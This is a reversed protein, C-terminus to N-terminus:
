ISSCEWTYIIVGVVWIKNNVKVKEYRCMYIGAILAAATPLWEFKYMFDEDDRM